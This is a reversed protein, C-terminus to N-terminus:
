SIFVLHRGDRLARSSTLLDDEQTEEPQPPNATGTRLRLTVDVSRKAVSTADSSLAVALAAGLIGDGRSVGGFRMGTVCGAADFRCRNLASGILANL